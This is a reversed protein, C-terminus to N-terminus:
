RPRCWAGGLGGFAMARAEVVNRNYRERESMPPGAILRAIVGPLKTTRPLISKALNLRQASGVRTAKPAQKGSM